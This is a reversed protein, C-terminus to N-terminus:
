EPFDCIGRIGIKEQVCVKCYHTRFTEVALQVLSSDWVADTMTTHFGMRDGMPSRPDVIFRPRVKMDQLQWDERCRRLAAQHSAKEREVAMMEEEAQAKHQEALQCWFLEHAILAEREVELEAITADRGASMSDGTHRAMKSQDNELVLLRQQRIFVQHAAEQEQGELRSVERMHRSNQFAAEGVERRALDRAANVEHAFRQENESMQYRVQQETARLSQLEAAVMSHMETTYAQAQAAYSSQAGALQAALAQRDHQQGESFRLSMERAEENIVFAHRAETDQIMRARFALQGQYEELERSSRIGEEARRVV